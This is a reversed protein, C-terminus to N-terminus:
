DSYTKPFTEACTWTTVNKHRPRAFLKPPQEAFPSSNRTKTLDAAYFVRVFRNRFQSVRSKRWVREIMEIYILSRRNHFVVLLRRIPWEFM